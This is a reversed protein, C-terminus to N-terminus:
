ISLYQMKESFWYAIKLAPYIKKKEFIEQRAAAIKSLDVWGFFLATKIKSFKM